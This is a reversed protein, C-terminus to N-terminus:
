MSAALAASVSQTSLPHAHAQFVRPSAGTDALQSTAQAMLLLSDTHLLQPDPAQSTQASSHKLPEDVPQSTKSYALHGISLLFAIGSIIAVFAM